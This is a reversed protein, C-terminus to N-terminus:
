QEPCPSACPSACPSPVDGHVPNSLNGLTPLMTAVGAVTAGGLGVRTHSTQPQALGGAESGTNAAEVTGKAKASM